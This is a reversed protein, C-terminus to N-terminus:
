CSVYVILLIYVRLHMGWDKQYDGKTAQFDRGFDRGKDRPGRGKSVQFDRMQRPAFGRGSRDWTPQISVGGGRGEEGNGKERGWCNGM